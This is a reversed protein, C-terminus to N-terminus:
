GASYEKKAEAWVEFAADSNLGAIALGVILDPWASHWLNATVLGAAIIAVNAIADNRASLYAARTLSGADRRHRALLIACVTNILLAGLATVVLPLAQPAVPEWFKLWASWLTAAAPVLLLLAMGLGLRARWLAALGLGFFILFNVSADELFDISDAFLAVSGIWKAVGFEIAFYSLNAVAVLLVTRRLTISV